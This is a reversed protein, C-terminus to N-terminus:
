QVITVKGYPIFSYLLWRVEEVAVDEMNIIKLPVKTKVNLFEMVARLRLM